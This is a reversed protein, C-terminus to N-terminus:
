LVRRIDAGLSKLKIDISEYGRDIEHAPRLITKGEAALAALILSAGTRIDHTKLHSGCLSKVGKVFIKNKIIKIDAGMKLLEPVHNFRETYITEEITSKGDIISALATLLPQLDTPLLPYPMTKVHFPKIKRHKKIVLSSRGVSIEVGINRLLGILPKLHEPSTNKIKIRSNTIVAALIFTATEIRDPIISYQSGHLRRKGKIILKSTGAGKIDAGMRKLFNIMDTVEPEKAANEIKTTGKALVSALIINETGTVSPFRFRIKAGKLGKTHAYVFGDLRKFKAGLKQLGKIHIDIPRLGLACGGFSPLKLRGFKALYVGLFLLSYRLRKSNSPPNLCEKIGSPDIIFANNKITVAVGLEELISKMTLVDKSRPINKLITPKDSLLSAVMIPLASNKAGSIHVDGSLSKEGNIAFKEM